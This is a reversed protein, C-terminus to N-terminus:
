DWDHLYAKLRVMALVAQPDLVDVFADEKFWDMTAKAELESGDGKAEGRLKDTVNVAFIFYLSDVSKGGHSLGLPILEGITCDYGAEEKLELIATKPMDGHEVGGTITSIVPDMGWCPTVEKRLMYELTGDPMRRYPLLVLIKGGCRKEHMFTYGNVGQEPLVMEKIALWKNSWLEKVM